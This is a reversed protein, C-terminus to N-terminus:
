RSRVEGAGRNGHRSPLNKPPQRGGLGPQLIHSSPYLNIAVVNSKLSGRWVRVYGPGLGEPVRVRLEKEGLRDPVVRVSRDADRFEVVDGARFGRGTLVVEEGWRGVDISEFDLWPAGDDYPKAGFYPSERLIMREHRMLPANPYDGHWGMISRGPYDDPHHLGFAHGLEHVTTGKPVGGKCQWTAFSCPIAAPEAVGSIPELVWDGFLGFGVFDGYLNAGAWGGGGQAFIWAIQRPRFGGVAREISEMWYPLLQRDNRCSEEPQPGCRMTLYDDPAKVVRLPAARFTRGVRAFYWQRVERVLARVAREYEPHYPHDAPYVYYPQVIFPDAAGRAAESTGRSAAGAPAAQGMGSPAAGIWAGLLLIGGVALGVGIRM